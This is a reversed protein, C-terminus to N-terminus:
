KIKELDEQKIVSIWVSSKGNESRTWIPAIVGNHASIGIYNGGPAGADSVFSSESIKVNKFSVGGDKSYAVYVDTTENIYNRRDYYIIYIYGTEADLTMFPLYQHKGPVDNNIKLPQNWNDGFNLSRTFWIDTDTAGYTQDAWVLILEGTLSSKKTNDILFLPMGNANKVGPIDMKWGGDQEMIAIDNTLWTTGDFARDFFIKGQNGWAAFARQGGGMVAPTAGAPTNDDDKCDGNTQSLEMPKSWRKGNSSRSMLIRSLCNENDSKYIDFSTWTVFLNGKRDVAARPNLAYKSTDTSIMVGESWSMGGNTSEQIVVQSKGNKEAHYLCYFNGKFDTLLFINGPVGFNSQLISREWALGGNNTYYISGPSSSAVINKIDDRSVVVSPEYASPDLLISKFQAQAGQGAVIM